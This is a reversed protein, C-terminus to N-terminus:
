GFANLLQVLEDHAHQDGTQKSIDMGVRIVKDADNPLNMEFLMKAKQYYAYCYGSDLGLTKDLWEIALKYQDHKAYEMAIGYTCFPDKPDAQHLKILQELRNAMIM